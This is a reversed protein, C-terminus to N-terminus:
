SSESMRRQRSIKYNNIQKNNSISQKSGMLVFLYFYHINKSIINM